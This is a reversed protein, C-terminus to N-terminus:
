VQRFALKFKMTDTSGLVPYDQAIRLILKKDPYELLYNRTSYGTNIVQANAFGFKQIAHSVFYDYNIKAKYM